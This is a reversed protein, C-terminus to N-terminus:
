KSVGSTYRDENPGPDQSGLVPTPRPNGRFPGEKSSRVSSHALRTGESVRPVDLSFTKEKSESDRFSCLRTGDTM